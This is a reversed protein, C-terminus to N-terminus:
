LNDLISNIQNILRQRQPSKCDAYFKRTNQGVYIRGRTKAHEYSEGVNVYVKRLPSYTSTEETCDFVAQSISGDDNRVLKILEM